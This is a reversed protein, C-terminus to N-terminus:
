ILHSPFTVLFCWKFLPRFSTLLCCCFDSWPSRELGPSSCLCLVQPSFHWPGALPRHQQLPSLSLLLLPNESCSPGSCPQSQLDNLKRQAVPFDEGAPTSCLPLTVMQCCCFREPQSWLAAFFCCLSSNPSQQFWEPLLHCHDPGSHCCYFM